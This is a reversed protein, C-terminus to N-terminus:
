GPRRKAPQRRNDDSEGARRMTEAISEAPEEGWEVRGTWATGDDTDVAHLRRHHILADAPRRPRPQEEAHRVAASARHRRRPRADRHPGLPRRRHLGALGHRPAAPRHPPSTTTSSARARGAPRDALAALPELALRVDRTGTPTSSASSGRCSRTSCSCRPTRDGAAQKSRRRPRPAAVARRPRRRRHRVDVRFVRDLDAGAAMLRPVITHEWSDETACSWCAKRPQRLARRAPRRPHTPRGALLGLTSKGLGERGALLGLTGLAPSRGLAVDRPAAQDVVGAHPRHPASARACRRGCRRPADTSPIRDGEEGTAPDVTMGTELITVQERPEPVARPRAKGNRLGSQISAHVAGEGHEAAYGTSPRPTRSPPRHGRDGAPRRRRHLQRAGHGGRLPVPQPDLAVAQAVKDRQNDLAARLYAAQRKDPARGTWPASVVFPEATAAARHEPWSGSLPRSPMRNGGDALALLNDLIVTYGGGDYKPRQTGPLFVNSLPACRGRGPLRCLPQQLSAPRPPRPRLLTPRSGTHRGRRVGDRGARGPPDRVQEIDGGNRPDVDVVAVREGM